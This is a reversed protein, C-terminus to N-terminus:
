SSTPEVFADLDADEVWRGAAADALGAQTLELVEPNLAVELAWLAEQLDDALDQAEEQSLWCTQYPGHELHMAIRGSNPETTVLWKGM